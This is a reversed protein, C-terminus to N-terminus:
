KWSLLQPEATNSYANRAATMRFFNAAANSCQEFGSEDGHVAPPTAVATGNM